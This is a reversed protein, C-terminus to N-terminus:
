RAPGTEKFTEPIIKSKDMDVLVIANKAGLEKWLHLTAIKTKYSWDWGYGDISGLVWGSLIKKDDAFKIEAGDTDYLTIASGDGGVQVYFIKAENSIFAVDAFYSFECSNGTTIKKLANIGKQLYVAENCNPQNDGTTESKRVIYLKYEDPNIFESVMKVVPMVTKGDGIEVRNGNIILGTKSDSLTQPTETPTPTITTKTTNIIKTLNTSDSQLRNVEIQRWYYVGGGSVLAVIILALVIPLMPKPQNLVPQPVPTPIQPQPINEIM